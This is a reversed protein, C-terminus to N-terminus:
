ARTLRYRQVGCRPEGATTPASGPASFLQTSFKSGGWYLLHIDDEREDRCM